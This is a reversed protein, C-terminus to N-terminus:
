YKAHYMCSIVNIKYLVTKLSNSHMFNEAFLIGLEMVMVATIFIKQIVTCPHAKDIKIAVWRIGVRVRTALVTVM